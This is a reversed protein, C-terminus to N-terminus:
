ADAKIGVLAQLSAYKVLRRRGISVTELKREKILRYLTTNGLGTIKRATKVTVALQKADKLADGLGASCISM